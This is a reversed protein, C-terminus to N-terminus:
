GQLHALLEGGGERERLRGLEAEELARHAPRGRMGARLGERAGEGGAVVAVRLAVAVAVAVAM